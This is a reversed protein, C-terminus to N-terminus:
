SSGEVYGETFAKFAEAGDRGVDRADEPKDIFFEFSGTIMLDGNVRTEVTVKMATAM